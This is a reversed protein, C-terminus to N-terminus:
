KERLLGTGGARAIDLIVKLREMKLKHDKELFEMQFDRENDKYKEKLELLEREEKLNLVMKSVGYSNAVDKVCNNLKKGFILSCDAVREALM